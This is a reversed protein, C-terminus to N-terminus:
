NILEFEYVWVFPNSGWTGDGSVGDILLEFADRPLCCPELKRNCPYYADMFHTELSGVRGKQIGEKMCDDDSIDQLREVKVDTIRIKYPMLKAKVFMKNNWGALNKMEPLVSDLYELYAATKGRRHLSDITKYSQAIAVIEGIQYKPLFSKPMPHPRRNNNLRIFWDGNKYFVDTVSIPSNDRLDVLDFPIIRRTSTKLGDIVAQTLGYSDNYMIKKM